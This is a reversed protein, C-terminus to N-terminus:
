WARQIDDLKILPVSYPKCPPHCPIPAFSATCRQGALRPAECALRLWLQKGPLVGAVNIGNNKGAITGACHTGHGDVDTFNRPIFQGQLFSVGDRSVKLDEQHRSRPCAPVTPRKVPLYSGYGIPRDKARLRIAPM